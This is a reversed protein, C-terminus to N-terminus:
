IYYELNIIDGIRINNKKIFGEELEVIHSYLPFYFFFSFPKLSQRMDVVEGERTLLLVDIPYRMFFTHIGFHTILLVPPNRNKDILGLLKHFFTTLAYVKITM